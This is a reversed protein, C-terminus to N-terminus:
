IYIRRFVYWVGEDWSFSKEWALYM